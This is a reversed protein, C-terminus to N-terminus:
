SSTPAKVPPVFLMAAEMGNTGVYNAFAQGPKLNRLLQAAMHLANEKSHVATPLLKMVPRLGESWSEQQSTGDAEGYAETTSESFSSMESSSNSEAWSDLSRQAMTAALLNSTALWGQATGLTESQGQGAGGGSVSMNGVVSAGSSSTSKATMRSKAHHKGVAAGRFTKIEHDVVTPKILAAVPM